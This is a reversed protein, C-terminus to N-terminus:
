ARRVQQEIFLAHDLDEVHAQGADLLGVALGLGLQGAGAGDHAGDIVHRGLLASLVLCASARASM